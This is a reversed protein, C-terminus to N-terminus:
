NSELETVASLFDTFEFGSSKLYGIIWLYWDHWTLFSDHFYRDHFLVTLYSAQLGYYKDIIRMTMEKAQDLSKNAYRRGHELIDGDMIHLPFEWLNGIRFPSHKEASARLTTDFRYGANGLWGFTNEAQRLYHMRVGFQDNGLINKFTLYENEIGPLNDFSIGHVGAKFGNAVVKRIWEAADELSYNLYCGNAVGFFFTAPIKEGTNFEMIEPIRHWRNQFMPGTRKIAEGFRCNGTTLEILNRTFFKPIVLDNYHEWFTIHDVDHSVIIKM